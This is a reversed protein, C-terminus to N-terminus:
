EAIGPHSLRWEVDFVEKKERRGGSCHLRGLCSWAIHQCERGGPGLLQTGSPRGLHEPVGRRIIGPAPEGPPDPGHSPTEWRLAPYLKSPVPLLQIVGPNGSVRRGPRLPVTGRVGRAARLGLPEM